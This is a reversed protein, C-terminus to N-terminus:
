LNLYLDRLHVSALIFLCITSTISSHPRIYKLKYICMGEIEEM